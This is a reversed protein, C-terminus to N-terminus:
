FSPWNLGRCHQAIGSWLPRWRGPKPLPSAKGTQRLEEATLQYASCVSEIVQELNMPVARAEKADLLV